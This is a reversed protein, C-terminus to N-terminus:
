RRKTKSISHKQLNKNFDAKIQRMSRATNRMSGGYYPRYGFEDPGM